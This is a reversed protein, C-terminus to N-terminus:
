EESEANDEESSEKDHIMCSYVYLIYSETINSKM